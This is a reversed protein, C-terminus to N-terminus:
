WKCHPSQEKRDFTVTTTIPNEVQPANLVPYVQLFGCESILFVYPALPIFLFM